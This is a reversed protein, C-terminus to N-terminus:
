FTTMFNDLEAFGEDLLQSPPSATQLSSLPSQTQGDSRMSPSITRNRRSMLNNDLNNNEYNTVDNNTHTANDLDQFEKSDTFDEMKIDFSSLLNSADRSTSSTDNSFPNTSVLINSNNQSPRIYQENFTMDSSKTDNDYKNTSVKFDESASPNRAGLLPDSGITNMDGFGNSNKLQTNSRDDNYERQANNFRNSPQIHQNQYHQQSQNQRNSSQRKTNANTNNISNTNNGQQAGDNNSDSNIRDPIDMFSPTLSLVEVSRVSENDTNNKSSSNGVFQSSVSTGTTTNDLKGAINKINGNSRLATQNQIGASNKNGEQLLLNAMSLTSMSSSDALIDLLGSYNINKNNPSNTEGEIYSFNDADTAQTSFNNAANNNIHESDTLPNNNPSHGSEGFINNIIGNANDADDIPLSWDHQVFSEQDNVKGIGNIDPPVYEDLPISVEGVRTRTKPTIKKSSFLPNLGITTNEHAVNDSVSKQLKRPFNKMSHINSGEGFENKILGSNNNNPNNNNNNVPSNEDTSSLYSYGNEWDM